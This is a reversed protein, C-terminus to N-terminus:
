PGVVSLIGVTQPKRAPLMEGPSPFGTLKPFGDEALAIMENAIGLVSFTTTHQTLIFLNLVKLYFFL